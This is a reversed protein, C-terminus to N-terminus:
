SLSCVSAISEFRYVKSPFIFSQALFLRGDVVLSLFLRIGPRFSLTLGKRSFAINQCETHIDGPLGKFLVSCLM